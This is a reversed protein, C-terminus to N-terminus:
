MRIRKPPSQTLDIILSPTGTLQIQKPAYIVDLHAKLEPDLDALSQLHPQTHRNASTSLIPANLHSVLETLKGPKPLRIGVTPSTKGPLILTVPGPWVQHIWSAQAPTWAQTLAQAMEISSVIHIFSQSLPREKIGCLQAHTEPLGVLGWITDCPFLGVKNESLLQACIEISDTQIPNKRPYLPNM